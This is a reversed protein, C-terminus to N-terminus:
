DYVWIDDGIDIWNYIFISDPIPNRLCGHSAPSDPVSAYGHTAEGGNYYASFYMGLSNYGPDKWYFEYHGKDSPTSPAGSSIHYTYKAEGDDALVMVQRSLDVEVHKGENPYKLDYEGKGSALLQFVDATIKENRSMGNAKRFAHVARATEANIKSGNPANGYGYENLLDNFTAAANSSDGYDVDPIDLRFPSSSDRAKSLTPNEYHIVRAVYRGPETLPKSRFKVQGLDKNGVQRVNIPDRDIVKGDRLLVVKLKEGQQYPRLNAVVNVRNGIQVKNNKVGQV